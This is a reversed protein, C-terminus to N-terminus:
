LFRFLWSIFLVIDGCGKVREKMGMREERREKNRKQDAKNYQM